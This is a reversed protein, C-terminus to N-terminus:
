AASVVVVRSTTCRLNEAEPISQQSGSRGFSTSGSCSHVSFDNQAPALMNARQVDRGDFKTAFSTLVAVSLMFCATIGKSNYSSPVTTAPRKAACSNNEWRVGQKVCFSGPAVHRSVHIYSVLICRKRSRRRMWKTRLLQTTHAFIGQRISLIHFIQM